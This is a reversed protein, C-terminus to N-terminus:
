GFSRHNPRISKFAASFKLLQGQRAGSRFRIGKGHRGRRCPDRLSAKVRRADLANGQPYIGYVYPMSSILIALLQDGNVDGVRYNAGEVHM